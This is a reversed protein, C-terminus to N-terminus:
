MYLVDHFVVRVIDERKLGRAALEEDTMRQLAQVKKMRPNAEAVAVLAHGITSFFNQVASLVGASQTTQTAYAM